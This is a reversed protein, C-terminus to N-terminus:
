WDVIRLRGTQIYDFIQNIRSRDEDSIESDSLMTYTLVIHDQRSMQGSSFIRDIIQKIAQNSYTQLPQIMLSWGFLAVFM